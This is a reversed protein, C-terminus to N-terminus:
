AAEKMKRWGGDRFIVKFQMMKLYDPNMGLHQLRGDPLEIQMRTWTEGFMSHEIFGVVEGRVPGDICEWRVRDGLLVKTMKRKWKLNPCIGRYNM